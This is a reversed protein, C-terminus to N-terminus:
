VAGHGGRNEREPCRERANEEIRLPSKCDPCRMPQRDAVLQAGHRLMPRVLEKVSEAILNELDGMNAGNMTADEVKSRLMDMWLNADPLDNNAPKVNDSINIVMFSPFALIRFVRLAMARVGLEEVDM